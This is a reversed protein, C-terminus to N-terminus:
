DWTSPIGTILERKVCAELLNEVLNDLGNPEFLDHWHLREFRNPVQCEELRVPILYIAGEPQLDLIDLGKKVEKQVYGTKSVSSNSLCAIFFHAQKIAKSIELEWDQGAILKEKDIWPNFKNSALISYIAFAKAFDEKAYSIFIKVKYTPYEQLKWKEIVENGLGMLSAVTNLYETEDLAKM